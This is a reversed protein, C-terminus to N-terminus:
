NSGERRRERRCKCIHNFLCMLQLEGTSSGWPDQSMVKRTIEVAESSPGCALEYNGLKAYCLAWQRLLRALNGLRRDPFLHTQPVSTVQILYTTIEELIGAEETYCESIDLEHCIIMFLEALDSPLNPDFTKGLNVPSATQIALGERAVSIAKGLQKFELLFGAYTILSHTLQDQKRNGLQRWIGISEEIALIADDYRKDAAYFSAMRQLLGSITDLESEYAELKLDEKASLSRRIQIVKGVAFAAEAYRGCANYAIFLNHFSDRLSLEITPSTRAAALRAQIEAAAEGFEIAKTHNGLCEHYLALDYLSTALTSEYTKPDQSVLDRRLPVVEEVAEIADHYRHCWYYAISLSDLSDCLNRQYQHDMSLLTRTLAVAERRMDIAKDRQSLKELATARDELVMPLETQYSLTNPELAIVRRYVETTESLAKEAGSYRECASLSTALVHLCVALDPEYKNADVNVLKRCAEVAETAVEVASKYGNKSLTSALTRLMKVLTPLFRDEDVTMLERSIKIGEQAIELMSEYRSLSYLCIAHMRMALALAERAGSDQTVECIQQRLQVAHEIILVAEQSRCCEDLCTAMSFLCQALPEAWSPFLTTLKSGPPSISQVLAQLDPVVEGLSATVELFSRINPFLIETVLTVHSKQFLDSPIALLHHLLFKCSYWLPEVIDGKKLLPIGPVHFIDWEGETYGLIPVNTKNLQKGITLLLLRGLDLNQKKSDIRYPSPARSTLYIKISDNILRIPKHIDTSDQNLLFPGMRTCIAQVSAIDLGEHGDYISVIAAPSLPEKLTVIAGVVTHYLEILDSNPGIHTALVRDYLTEMKTEADVDGELCENSSGDAAFSSLSATQPLRAGTAYEWLFPEAAEFSNIGSTM